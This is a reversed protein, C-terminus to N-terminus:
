SFTCTAGKLTVTPMEYKIELRELAIM